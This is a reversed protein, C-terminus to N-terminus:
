TMGGMQMGMDQRRDPEPLAPRQREEIMLEELSLVGHYSIYGLENFEGCEKDLRQQGYKTYDYFDELNEDYEFHGSERFDTVSPHLGKMGLNMPSKECPTIDGVMHLLYGVVAYLLYVKDADVEIGKPLRDGFGIHSHLIGYFM